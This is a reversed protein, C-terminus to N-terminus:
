LSDSQSALHIMYRARSSERMAEVGDDPEAIMQLAVKLCYYENLWWGRYRELEALIRQQAICENDLREELISVRHQAAGLDARVDKTNEKEQVLRTKVRREARELTQIRAKLM